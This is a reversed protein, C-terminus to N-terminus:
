IILLNIQIKYIVASCLVAVLDHLGCTCFYTVPKVTYVSSIGISVEDLSTGSIGWVFVKPVKILIDNYGRISYFWM